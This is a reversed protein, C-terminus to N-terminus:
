VTLGKEKLIALIAALEDAEHVADHLANHETGQFAVGVEPIDIGNVLGKFTRLCRNNHYKWPQRLGVAAYADALIANDFSPDNGVLYDAGQLRYFEAFAVLADPLTSANNALLAQRAADSQTLWWNITSATVKLGAKLSSELTVARYFQGNMGARGTTDPDVMCAGIAVIATNGGTGMTEIDVVCYKM